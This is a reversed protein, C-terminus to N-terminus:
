PFWSHQARVLKAVTNNKSQYKRLSRHSILLFCSVWPFVHLVYRVIDAARLGAGTVVITHPSGKAKPAESLREPEAAFQELFDPLKELNRMETWSTTDKISNALTNDTEM